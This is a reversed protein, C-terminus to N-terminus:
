ETNANMVWIDSEDLRWVFYVFAGDTALAYPGIKGPRGSLETVRRTRGDELSYEWIGDEQPGLYFVRRGDLSFRAVRSEFGLSENRGFEGSWRWRLGDSANQYLIWRSDPSWDAPRDGHEILRRLGTGDAAVAWTEGSSFAITKGDPSWRPDLDNETRRTLQRAPGPEVPVVWIDRSGSRDSHFAIERCDPSWSPGWESTPQSTLQRLNRGDSTMMWLDLTSARDSSFALLPGGRCVDISDVFAQESTLPQADQWTAARDKLIPVRWVNAVLRGRAYALKKGDSSFSARAYLGLAVTVAQPSGDPSGDQDLAQRWLDMTGSVNSVYYLNGKGDFSPGWVSTSGESLPTATGDDRVLWLRTAPAQYSPAEVFAFHRGDKSWALDFVSGSIPPLSLDNFEGSTLDTRRLTQNSAVCALLAGDASWVPHVREASGAYSTVKRAPGGLAPMVFCGGGDRSSAFAISSGEPSWSPHMDAGAHDATLNVPPGGSVQSVWVDWNDGGALAAYALRSGDPSWTPYAEVGVATTVQRPHSLRPIADDRGGDVLGRLVFGAALALLAVPVVVASLARRERRSPGSPRVFAGSLLEERCDLLENKLDLASQFRRSPDKELCRKVIRALDRPIEDKVDSLYQPRDKLISSVIGAPSEGRFPLRGTLLEYFVVGLSFVDARHDISKSEAQEPSMYGLTGVIFGQQTATKVESVVPEASERRVKALGFDLIKVQGEESMMVNSPKLDRHTIGRQHAMAVGDTLPIAIDFFKELNFGRAPLLDAVTKGRVLEMTMFHVGNSEEISHVTVINPHSLAAIAKAERAFRTLREESEALDPPLVKLAVKRSLKTDEAVYVDGMGGSGIKELIRYHALTKGVM